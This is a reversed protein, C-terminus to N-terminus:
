EIKLLVGITETTQKDESLYAKNKIDWSWKNTTFFTSEDRFPHEVYILNAYFLKYSLEIFENVEFQNTDKNNLFLHKNYICNREIISDFDDKIYSIAYKKLVSSMSDNSFFINNLYLGYSIYIKKDFKRSYFISDNNLLYINKSIIENTSITDLLIIFMSSNRQDESYKRDVKYSLFLGKQNIIQGFVDSNFFILILM